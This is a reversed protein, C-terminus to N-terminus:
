FSTTQPQYDKLQYGQGAFAFPQVNALPPAKFTIQEDPKILGTPRTFEM